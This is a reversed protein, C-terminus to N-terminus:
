QFDAKEKGEIQSILADAIPDPRRNAIGDM